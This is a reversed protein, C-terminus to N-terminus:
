KKKSKAEAKAETKVETKAEAKAEAPKAELVPEYEDSALYEAIREEGTIDWNVGTVKNRFLM